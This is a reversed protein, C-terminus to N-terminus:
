DGFLEDFQAGAVSAGITHAATNLILIAAIPREINTKFGQWVVGVRPHRTALNAVQSPTLSLLAAEMLSCLFSISLAVAVSAIFITV